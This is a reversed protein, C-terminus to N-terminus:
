GSIHMPLDTVGQFQKWVLRKVLKRESVPITRHRTGSLGQKIANEIIVVFDQRMM